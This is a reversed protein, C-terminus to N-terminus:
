EDLHIISDIKYGNDTKIIKYSEKHEHTNKNKAQEEKVNAVIAGKVVKSKVVEVQYEPSKKIKTKEFLRKLLDNKNLTKYFSESTTEKVLEIKHQNIGDKYKKVIAKIDQSDEAFANSLPLMLLAVISYRKFWSM